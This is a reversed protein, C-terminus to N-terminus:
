HAPKSYADKKNTHCVSCNGIPDATGQLAINQANDKALNSPSLAHPAGHCTSCLITDNKHAMSKLYSGGFAHLNATEGTASHCDQCRPLTSEQWPQELQGEAVREHLDGHCDTCWVAHDDQGLTKNTHHGRYCMVNNSPHCEYCDTALDPNYSLVQTNEVHWRHLVDSFTFQSKPLFQGANDPDAYGDPHTAEGPYSEGMAPDWHCVSCRIPGTVGDGDPDLLAFNIGSDREHLTGMLDFSNDPNPDMGNDATLELHCGCCGGFSVPVTTTTSALLANNSQDFVEVEATLYPNRNPGGLPDVMIYESNSSNHADPFAPVGIKEWWGEAQADMEGALMAGTVGRIAGHNPGGDDVRASGLGYLPQMDMWTSFYFDTSLDTKSPDDPKYSNFVDHNEIVDYEVRIDNPDALIVPSKGGREIVQARLTNFPPLLLMKETGPCACHMGLDNSAMVIVDRNSGACNDITGDCDNDIGDDCSVEPDETVTCTPADVCSGTNPNGQWECNPDDNCLGKDTYDVCAGGTACDSDASDTYTDCDNDITDDCTLEQTEEGPTPTCTDCGDAPEPACEGCSNLDWVAPDNDNCDRNSLVEDGDNDVPRAAEAPFLGMGFMLIAIWLLAYIKKM